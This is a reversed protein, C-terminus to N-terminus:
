SPKCTNRPSAPNKSLQTSFVYITTVGEVYVCYIRCIINNTDLAHKNYKTNLAINRKPVATVSVTVSVTLITELGLLNNRSKIQPKILDIRKPM